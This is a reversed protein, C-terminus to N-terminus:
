SVVIIRPATLSGDGQKRESYHSEFGLGALSKAYAKALPISYTIVAIRADRPPQRVERRFGSTKGVGM